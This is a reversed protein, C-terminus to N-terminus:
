AHASLSALPEVKWLTVSDLPWYYLAGGKPKVELVTNEFLVSWDMKDSLEYSFTKGRRIVSLTVPEPTRSKAM